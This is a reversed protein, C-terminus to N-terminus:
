ITAHTTVLIVFLTILIMLIILILILIRNCVDYKVRRRDTPQGTHQGTALFKISIGAYEKTRKIKSGIIAGFVFEEEIALGDVMEMYIEMMTLEHSSGVVDSIM